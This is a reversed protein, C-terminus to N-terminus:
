LLIDTCHHLFYTIILQSGITVSFMLLDVMQFCTYTGHAILPAGVYFLLAEAHPWPDCWVHLGESVHGARRYFHGTWL